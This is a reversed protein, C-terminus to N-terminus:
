RVFGSDTLWTELLEPWRAAGLKDFGSAAGRGTMGIGHGGHRFVHLEASVSANRLALYHGDVSM